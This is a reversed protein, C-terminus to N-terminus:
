TGKDVFWLFVLWSQGIALKEKKLDEGRKQRHEAGSPEIQNTDRDPGL